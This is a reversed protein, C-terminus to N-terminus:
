SNRKSSYFNIIKASLVTSIREYGQTSWGAIHPTFIVQQMARLTNFWGTSEGESSFPPEQELVDLAAAKVIGGQLAQILDFSNVIGGRATNIFVIPKKFQEFFKRNIWGETEKTLPVHITLIDTQEYITHLSSSTAYADFFFRNEEGQEAKRYKDFALVHVGFGSLKKAVASGTHGYGIIGVTSNMLEFGRNEERKWELNKVEENSKLIKHQLALICGITHEAVADCLGEPANIIQIGRHTAYTVDINDTGSGARAIFQLRPAADIFKKDISFKTRVVVGEYQAIVDLVEHLAIHPQYNFPIQQDRLGQMLAPHMEDAILIM